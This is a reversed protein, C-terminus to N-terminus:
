LVSPPPPLPPFGLSLPVLLPFILGGAEGGGSVLQYGHKIIQTHTKVARKGPTFVFQNRYLLVRTILTRFHNFFVGSSINLTVDNTYYWGGRMRERECTTAPAILPPQIRLSGNTHRQKKLQSFSLTLYQNCALDESFIMKKIQYKKKFFQKKFFCGLELQGAYIHRMNKTKSLYVWSCSQNWCIYEGWQEGYM